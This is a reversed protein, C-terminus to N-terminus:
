QQKDQLHRVFFKMIKRRLYPTGGVHPLNPVILTDFDKDAEILADFIRMSHNLTANEDIEGFTLLLKGQMRDALLTNSMPHTHGNEPKMVGFYRQVALNTGALDHIGQHSVCVKFFDPYLLFARLSAFGGYSWGFIGVRDIDLYSHRQALKELAAKHDLAG